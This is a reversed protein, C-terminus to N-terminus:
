VYHIPDHLVGIGRKSAHCYTEFAPFISPTAVSDCKLTPGFCIALAIANERMKAGLNAGYRRFTVVFQSRQLAWRIRLPLTKIELRWCDLFRTRARRCIVGSFPQLTVNSRWDAAVTHPVTWRTEPDVQGAFPDFTDIIVTDSFKANRCM